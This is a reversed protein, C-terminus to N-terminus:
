LITLKVRKTINKKNKSQYYLLLHHGKIFMSDTEGYIWDNSDSIDITQEKSNVLNHIYLKEFEENKIHGIITSNNKVKQVFDYQEEPRNKDTFVFVRSYCPGGCSFGVETYLDNCEDIQSMQPRTDLIKTFTNNGKKSTITLRYSNTDRNPIEELVSTFQDNECHYISDLFKKESKLSKCYNVKSLSDENQPTSADIKQQKSNQCSLFLFAIFLLQLKM